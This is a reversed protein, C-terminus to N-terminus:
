TLSWPRCVRSMRTSARGWRPLVPASDFDLPRGCAAELTDFEEQAMGDLMTAFAIAPDADPAGIEAEACDLKAPWLYRRDRKLLERLEEALSDFAPRGPDAAVADALIMAVLPRREQDLEDLREFFADRPLPLPRPAPQWRGGEALTWLDDEALSPLALESGFAPDAHRHPKIVGQSDAGLFQADFNEGGEREILLLRVPQPLAGVRRALREALVRVADRRKLTYDAVILTPRQPQWADLTAADAIYDKPLFGARWGEAHALMALRLCLRTKGAGGSGCLLWWTFDPPANLFGHLAEM